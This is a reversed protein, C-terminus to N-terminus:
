LTLDFDAEALIAGNEARKIDVSIFELPQGSEQPAAEDFKVDMVLRAGMVSPTGNNDIRPQFMQRSNIMRKGVTGRLSLYTYKAAMLISRVLRIIRQANRAAAEDGQASGDAATYGPAYCDINFRGDHTQRAITNSANGDMNDTDFWVNVIPTENRGAGSQEWREWPESRETFVDFAWLAPDETAATALIQQAATENALIQAIQDRVIEFNDDRNILTDITM